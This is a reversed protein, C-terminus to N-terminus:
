FNLFAKSLRETTSWIKLTLGQSEGLLLVLLFRIIIVVVVVFVKHFDLSLLVEPVLFLVSLFCYSVMGKAMGHVFLWMLYANPVSPSHWVTTLVCSTKFWSSLSSAPLYNSRIGDM